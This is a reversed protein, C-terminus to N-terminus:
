VTKINVFHDTFIPAGAMRIFFRFLVQHQKFQTAGYPNIEIANSMSRVGLAYNRLNGLLIFDSSTADTGSIQEVEVFPLGAILSPNVSMLASDSAGFKLNMVYPMIERALYFKAGARRVNVLSYIADFFNRSVIDSYSTATGSTGMDVDTSGCGLAATFPASTGNFVEDDIGKGCAEVADRTIYSVMDIMADDLLEQSITGWLGFRGATLDVDASGPESETSAAEEAAYTLSTSTGQSPIHLVNGTMPFRRCDQLAVSVQKAKEIVNSYWQEPVYESGEGSTGEQMAAKQIAPNNSHKAFVDIVEKIVADKDKENTPFLEPADTGQMKFSYGKYKDPRGVEFQTGTLGKGIKVSAEELKAVKTELDKIKSDKEAEKTKVDEASKREAMRESMADLLIDLKDKEM